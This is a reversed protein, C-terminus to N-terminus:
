LLRSSVRKHSSGMGGLPTPNVSGRHPVRFGALGRSAHARLQVTAYRSGFGRRGFTRPKKIAQHLALHVVRRLIIGNDGNGAHGAGDAGLEDGGQVLATKRHPSQFRQRAGARGALRDIEAPLGDHDLLQILAREVADVDRQERGATANGPSKRRDRGFGAGDHDVIGGGESHVRVHRQHDGLDVRVSDPLVPTDDGNWVARRDRRQHRQPRDVLLVADLAQDQRGILGCAAGAGGRHLFQQLRGAGAKGAPAKLRLDQRVRVREVDEIVVGPDIRFGPVILFFGLHDAFRPFDELVLADGDAHGANANGHQACLWAMVKSHSFGIESVWTRAM